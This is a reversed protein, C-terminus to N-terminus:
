ALEQWGPFLTPNDRLFGFLAYALAHVRSESLAIDTIELLPHLSEHILSAHQTQKEGDALSIARHEYSIEGWFRERTTEDQLVDALTVMYNIPGIRLTPPINPM